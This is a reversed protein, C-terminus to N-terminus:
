QKLKVRFKERSKDFAQSAAVFCWKIAQDALITPRDGAQKLMSELKNSATRDETRKAVLESLAKLEEGYTGFANISFAFSNLPNDVLGLKTEWIKQGLSWSEVAAEVMSQEAQWGVPWGVLTLTELSSKVEALQDKLTAYGIGQDTSARLKAGKELLGIIRNRSEDSVIPKASLKVLEARAAKVEARAADADAKARGLEVKLSAAEAQAAEM